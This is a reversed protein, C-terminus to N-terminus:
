LRVKAKIPPGVPPGWTDLYLRIADRINAIAEAESDGESNCGPLAPATASYGGGDEPRLYM